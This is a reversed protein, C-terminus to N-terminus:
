ILTIFNRGFDIIGEDKMKALERSLSPRPINLYLALKEKSSFYITNKKNMKSKLLFLIKEKINKQCLIKLREQVLLRKNALFGLYNLLINKDEQLLKIFNDKTIFAIKTEKLCKGYGLYFPNSSFLLTSAFIDNELITNISYENELITLTSIQLAGSLVLGITKCEDGENFVIDDKKYTKIVLYRQYNSLSNNFLIHM